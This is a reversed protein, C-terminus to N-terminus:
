ANVIGRPFERILERWYHQKLNDKMYIPIKANRAEGVIEDIMLDDPGCGIGGGTLAGIIIWDVDCPINTVLPKLLPEFSIFKINPKIVEAFADLPHTNGGTDTVGLWCNEPFEFYSYRAPYKTLFQFTHQPYMDARNIIAEIWDDPIWPGMVDHTSCVFIRSQKKLKAIEDFVSLVLKIREDLKFRKYIKRAYCYNCGGKCLGKIPNITYDCWGITNKANNM